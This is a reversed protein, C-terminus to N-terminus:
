RATAAGGIERALFAEVKRLFDARNAPARFGHGEDAYFLWEVKVGAAEAATRFKRSHEIPVRRDGGGHALLVPVKIKAAQRLPSAEALQAADKERDGILRPMGHAKWGESLDSWLLDYMLDVDSVGAYSVACRYVSADRIPGMLAAYGGYSGGMICVRKGDAIGEKVAWAVSDALDDQMARGWEKWGARFHKFGYGTSGRYETEIVLYGLSALFQADEDWMLDHGRLFPGGHVLVVAPLPQGAKADPPRTLYVPLSLGDRAPVRHFTRTGQTAPTIWPRAAGIPQLNAKERDFLYYEPPVRDSASEVVLFRSSTCRGCYLRNSREPPLAADIAQQIKRLERDFWYSAPREMRFHLGLLTGTTPDTEIVPQDLDFGQLAILPEAEMQKAVPDFRYLAYHDRGKAASVLLQGQPDIFRPTFGGGDYATFEGLPQWKADDGAAKWHVTVRGDRLSTVARPQGKHDLAWSRANAPVGAGLSRLEGTQTNLRSLPLSQLEGVSDYERRAVVVDPSNDDLMAYLWWRWGLVRSGMNDAPNGTIILTRQASGDRNVAFLGGWRVFRDGPENGDHVAFVLREDNAWRVGVVDAHTFSVIGKPEGLPSLEMVALQMREHRNPITVALRTGSPSMAVEGIFPRRVYDEASPPAAQVIGVAFALVAACAGSRLNATAMAM